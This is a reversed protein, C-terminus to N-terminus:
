NYYRKGPLVVTAGLTVSYGRFAEIQVEVAGPPLRANLVRVESEITALRGLTAAIASAHRAYDGVIPQRAEEALQQARAQWGRSM